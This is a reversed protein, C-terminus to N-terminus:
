QKSPQELKAVLKEVVLEVRKSERLVSQRNMEMFTWMKLAIQLMTSFLFVVAWHMKHMQTGEVFFFQYGSWFMVVTLVFTFIGVIIM